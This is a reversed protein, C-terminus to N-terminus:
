KIRTFPLWSHEMTVENRSKIIGDPYIHINEKRSLVLWVMAKYEIAVSLAYEIAEDETKIYEPIEREGYMAPMWTSIFNGVDFFLHSRLKILLGWAYIGVIYPKRCLGFFGTFYLKEAM